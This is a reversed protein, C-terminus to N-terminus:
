PKITSAALKVAVICHASGQSADSAGVFPASHVDLRAVPLVHAGVHLWPYAIDPVPVNEHESPVSDPLADHPPVGHSSVAGVFSSGGENRLEGGALSIPQVGACLGSSAAWM